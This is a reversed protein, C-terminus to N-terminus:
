TQNEQNLPVFKVASVLPNTEVGKFFFHEDFQIM